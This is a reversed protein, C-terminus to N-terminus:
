NTLVENMSGTRYGEADITIYSFGLKKLRRTPEGQLVSVLRDLESGAVEIRAIEGHDRVRVERFGLQRIISEASSIRFLGDVTIPRGYPFRSALCAMQPKDWTPLGIDKSLLRIELKGLGAELLPSKINLECAADRGPRYDGPDDANAGDIVSKYDEEKALGTLKTFLEQKCYYCRRSSNKAFNKNSLEKTFIVRHNINFLSAFNNADELEDQTYTESSATVALVNESGLVKNAFYALFSSDVGGSYAIVVREMGLLTEELQDKKSNIVENM